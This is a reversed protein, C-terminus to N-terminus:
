IDTRDRDPTGIVVNDSLVQVGWKTPHTKNEETLLSTLSYEVNQCDFLDITSAQKKIDAPKTPLILLFRIPLYSTYLLCAKLLRGTFKTGSVVLTLTRNEVEEQM